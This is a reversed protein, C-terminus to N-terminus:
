VVDITRKRHKRRAIVGVAVVGTAGLTWTSPEPVVTFTYTAITSAVQGTALITAQARFNFQYTGVESFAWYYHDHSPITMQNTSVPNATDMYVPSGASSILMFQGGTPQSVISDLTLTVSNGTFIGSQINNGLGLNPVGDTYNPPIYWASRGQWYSSFGPSNPIDITSEFPIVTEILAPDAIRDNEIPVGDIVSFKGLHYRLQLDTGSSYVALDAHGATYQELANAQPTRWAAISIIATVVIRRLASHSRYSNLPIM